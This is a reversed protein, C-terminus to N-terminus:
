MELVVKGRVDGEAVAALAKKADALPHVSHIHPKIQQHACFDVLRRMDDATGMATGVIRLRHAFIRAVETQAVYGSTAGAVVLTGEPRLAKLSHSWTAAGVSDMVADVRAPLRAGSEFVEHAGMERAYARKEETRGTVWIRLGAARGLVILATSLGGSAGQVLVTEGPSISAQRFLMTYATLWATPLCAAEVFSLEPPKPVLNQVPVALREAFTGQHRESLVSPRGPTPSGFPDAVVAHVVVERGDADVGAADCGLIMPLREEALGVGRLSWIDHHNISAAKVEVITWGEHPQPPPRDGVVLAGLPDSANFAEVYASLM